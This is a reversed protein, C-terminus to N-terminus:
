KHTNLFNADIQKSWNLFDITIAANNVTEEYTIGNLECFKLYSVLLKHLSELSQVNEPECFTSKAETKKPECFISTKEPKEKKPDLAFVNVISLMSIILIFLNKM